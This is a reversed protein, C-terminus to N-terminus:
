MITYLQSSAKTETKYSLLVFPTPQIINSTQCFVVPYKILQQHIKCFNQNEMMGM